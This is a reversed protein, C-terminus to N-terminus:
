FPFPPYQPTGAFSVFSLQLFFFKYCLYPPLPALFGPPDKHFIFVAANQRHPLGPFTFAAGFALLPGSKQAPFCLNPLPPPSLPPSSFGTRNPPPTAPSILSWTFFFLTDGYSKYLFGFDQSFCPFVLCHNAPDLHVPPSVCRRLWDPKPLCVVPFPFLFVATLLFFKTATLVL